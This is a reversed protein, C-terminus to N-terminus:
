AAEGPWGRASRGRPARTANEPKKPRNQGIQGLVECKWASLNLGARQQGDTGTWTNLRLWGELYVEVPGTMQPALSEALEGWVSARVWEPSGEAQQNSFVLVSFQLCAKGDPTYRLEAKSARGQLCATIGNM